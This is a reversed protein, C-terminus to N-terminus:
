LQIREFLLDGTQQDISVMCAKSSDINGNIVSSSSNSSVGGNSCGKIHLDHVSDVTTFTDGICILEPDFDNAYIRNRCHMFIHDSSSTSSSSLSSSSKPQDVSSSSALGALARGKLKGFVFLDGDAMAEGGPNVNGIIILSQHPEDSAIQQGSRITGTYVKTHPPIQVPTTISPSSTEEQKPFKSVTNSKDDNIYQTTTSISTSNDSSMPDRDHKDCTAEITHTNSSSPAALYSYLKQKLHIATGKAGLELEKCYKQLDRFPMQDIDEKKITITNHNYNSNSNM